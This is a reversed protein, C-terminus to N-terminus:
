SKGESNFALSAVKYTVGPTLNLLTYQLSVGDYQSEQFTIESTDDGQDRWIQYGLLPAGSIFDTDRLQVTITTSTSSVKVPKNPRNPVGAM